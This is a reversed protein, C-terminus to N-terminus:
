GKNIEMCMLEEISLSLLYQYEAIKYDQYRIYGGAFFFAVLGVAIFSYLSYLQYKIPM